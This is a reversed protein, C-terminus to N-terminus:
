KKSTPPAYNLERKLMATFAANPNRANTCEDAMTVVRDIIDITFKKNEISEVLWRAINQHATRDSLTRAKLTTTLHRAVTSRKASNTIATMAPNSTSLSSTNLFLDRISTITDYIDDSNEAKETVDMNAGHSMSVSGGTNNVGSATKVNDANSCVRQRAEASDNLTDNSAKGESVTVETLTGDSATVESVTVESKKGEREKGNSEKGEREKVNSETVNSIKVESGKVNVNSVKVQDDSGIPDSHGQQTVDDKGWRIMAGKLGSERQVQAM